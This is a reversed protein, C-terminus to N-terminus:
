ARYRLFELIRLDPVVLRPRLLESPFLLLELADYVRQRLQLRVQRVARLEEPERAGLTVVGGDM